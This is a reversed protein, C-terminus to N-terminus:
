TKTLLQFPLIKASTDHQAADAPEDTLTRLQDILGKPALMSDWMMGYLNLCAAMPTKCHHRAQDIRWQLRRLRTQKDEPASNIVDRLMTDRRREFAEPDHKALEMWSTFDDCPSTFNSM